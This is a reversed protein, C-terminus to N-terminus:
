RRRLRVQALRDHRQAAFHLASALLAVGIFMELSFWGIIREDFHNYFYLLMLPAAAIYPGRYFWNWPIRAPVRGQRDIAAWGLPSPVFWRRLRAREARRM